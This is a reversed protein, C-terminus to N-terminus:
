SRTVAFGWEISARGNRIMGTPPNPFPGAKNFSEIAAEDLESVGSSSRVFVDVINGKSDLVVKLSTLHKDSAPFRGKKKYLKDMKAKLSKGWHQELRQKIRYYFGYYKFEKTNLQTMDGLPVDDLYDNNQALGKNQKSGNKTGKVLNKTHKLQKAPKTFAFDKFSVKKKGRKNKTVKKKAVKKAEKKAVAKQSRSDIKSNGKGAKNFKGINSARTQRETSNNFESFYKADKQIDLNRKETTVIQKVNNKNRKKNFRIKIRKEKKATKQMESKKFIFKTPLFSVHLLFSALAAIWIIRKAKERKDIM